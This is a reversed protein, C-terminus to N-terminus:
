TLERLRREVEVDVDLPQLGDRVRRHNHAEVVARVEDLLGEGPVTHALAALEADVDIVAEGRRERRANRAGLLQRIEQEREDPGGAPAAGGSSAEDESDLGGAGIEHWSRGSGALTVLAVVVGAAAVLIVLPILVDQMGSM